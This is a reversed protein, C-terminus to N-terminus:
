RCRNRDVLHTHSYRKMSQTVQYSQPRGLSAHYPCLHLPYNSGQGHVSIVYTWADAFHEVNHVHWTTWVSLTSTANMPFIVKIFFFRANETLPEREVIPDPDRWHFPGTGTMVNSYVIYEVHSNNDNNDSLIDENRFMMATTNQHSSCLKMSTCTHITSLNVVKLLVGFTTM